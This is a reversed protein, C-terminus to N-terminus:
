ARMVAEYVGPELQAIIYGNSRSLGRDRLPEQLHQRASTSTRGERITSVLHTCLRLRNTSPHSRRGPKQAWVECNVDSATGSTLAPQLDTEEQKRKRIEAREERAAAELSRLKQALNCLDTYGEKCGRTAFTNGRDAIFIRATPATDPRRRLENH